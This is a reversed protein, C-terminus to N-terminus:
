TAFGHPCELFGSRRNKSLPGKTSKKLGYLLVLLEPPQSKQFASQLSSSTVYTAQRPDFPFWSQPFRLRTFTPETKYCSGRFKRPQIGSARDFEVPGLRTLTM